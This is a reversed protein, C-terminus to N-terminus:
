EEIIKWKWKKQEGGKREWRLLIATRRKRMLAHFLVDGLSRAHLVLLHRVETCQTV